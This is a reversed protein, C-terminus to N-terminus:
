LSDGVERAVDEVHSFGMALSRGSVSLDDLRQLVGKKLGAPIRV